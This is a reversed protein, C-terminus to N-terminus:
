ESDDPYNMIRNISKKIKTEDEPYQKILDAKLREVAVEFSTMGKSKKIYERVQAYFEEYQKMLQQVKDYKEKKEKEIEEDDLVVDKGEVIGAFDITIKRKTSRRSFSGHKLVFIM